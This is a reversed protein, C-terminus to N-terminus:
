VLGVIRERDAQINGVSAVDNRKKSSQFIFRTVVQYLESQLQEGKLQEVVVEAQKGAKRTTSPSKPSTRPKSKIVPRFYEVAFNRQM